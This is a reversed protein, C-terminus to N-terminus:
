PEPQGQSDVQFVDPFLSGLGLGEETVRAQPHAQPATEM